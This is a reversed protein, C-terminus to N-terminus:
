RHTPQKKRDTEWTEPAPRPPLAPQDSAPHRSGRAATARRRLAAPDSSRKACAPGSLPEAPAMFIPPPRHPQAPVKCSPPPCRHSTRGRRGAGPTPAAAATPAPPRPFRHRATSPAPRHHRCAASIGASSQQQRAAYQGAMVESHRSVTGNSLQALECHAPMRAQGACCLRAPMSPTRAQQLVGGSVHMM